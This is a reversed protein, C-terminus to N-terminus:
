LVRNARPGDVAVGVARGPSPGPQRPEQRLSPWLSTAPPAVAAALRGDGIPGRDLLARGLGVQAALEAMPLAVEHVEAPLPVDAQGQLLPAGPQRQGTTKEAFM